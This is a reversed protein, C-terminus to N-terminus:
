AAKIQNKIFQVSEGWRRELNESLAVLAEAKMDLRQKYSAKRVFMLYQLLVRGGAGQRKYVGSPLWGGNRGLSNAGPVVAFFENEVGMKAARKMSQASVPKALKNVSTKLQLSRIIQRYYQGPMNGYGDL